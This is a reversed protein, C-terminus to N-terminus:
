RAPQAPLYIDARDPLSADFWGDLHTEVILRILLEGMEPVLQPRRQGTAGVRVRWWSGVLDAAVTLSQGGMWEQVRTFAEVLAHESGLVVAQSPLKRNANPLALNLVAGLVVGRASDKPLVAAAELAAARRAVEQSQEFIAELLEPRGFAAQRASEQLALAASRLKHGLRSLLHIRHEDALQAGLEASRRAQALGAQEGGGRRRGHGARPRSTSKLQGM